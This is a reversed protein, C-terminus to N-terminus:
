GLRIVAVAMGSRYGKMFLMVLLSCLLVIIGLVIAMGKSVPYICVFLLVSSLWFCFHSFIHMMIYLIASSTAREVGVYPTLEMIRYPEGGMMGLPTVSNLAFGSVTFKYVKWFPPRSKKGECVILYWAWTNLLYIGAWLIFILFLYQKARKLNKWLEDYEMDFSFIMILILIIGFGLFINRFKSKM